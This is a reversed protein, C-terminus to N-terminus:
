NEQIDSIRVTHSESVRYNGDTDDCEIVFTTTTQDLIVTQSTPTYTWPGYSGDTSQIDCSNTDTNSASWTITVEAGQRAQNPGDIELQAERETEDTPEYESPVTTDGYLYCGPDDQDVLGDGDDDFTNMCNPEDGESNDNPNYTGPDTPDNWCGPDNQDQRGDGDNDMGDNCTPCASDSPASASCNRNCDLTGSNRM